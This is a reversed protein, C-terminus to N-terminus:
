HGCSEWESEGVVGSLNMTVLVVNTHLAIIRLHRSEVAEADLLLALAKWEVIGQVLPVENKRWEISFLVFIGYCGVVCLQKSSLWGLVLVM